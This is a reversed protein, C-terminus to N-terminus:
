KGFVLVTDCGNIEIFRVNTSINELKQYFWINGDEDILFWSLVLGKLEYKSLDFLINGVDLKICFDYIELPQNNQVLVRQYNSCNLEEIEDLKIKENLYNYSLGIHFVHNNVSHNKKTDFLSFRNKTM